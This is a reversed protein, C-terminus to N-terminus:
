EHHISSSSDVFLYKKWQPTQRASSILLALNINTHLLSKPLAYGFEELSLDSKLTNCNKCCTVLNSPSSDGGRSKPLVHDLTIDTPACDKGCYLCRFRDRSFIKHRKGTSVKLAKKISLYYTLRVVSPLKITHTWSVYSEDYYEEVHFSLSGGILKKLVKKMPLIALPEFSQNLLLVKKKLMNM